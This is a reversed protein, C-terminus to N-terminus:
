DNYGTDPGLNSGSVKRICTYFIEAVAVQETRQCSRISCLLSINKKINMSKHM